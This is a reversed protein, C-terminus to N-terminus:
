KKVKGGLKTIGQKYYEEINHQFISWNIANSKERYLELRNESEEAEVILEPKKYTCIFKPSFNYTHLVPHEIGLKTYFVNNPYDYKAEYQNSHFGLSLSDKVQKNALNIYNNCQTFLKQLEEYDKYEPSNAVEKKFNDFPDTSSM